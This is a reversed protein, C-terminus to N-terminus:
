SLGGKVSLVEYNYSFTFFPIKVKTELKGDEALNGSLEVTESHDGQLFDHFTVKLTICFADVKQKATVRLIYEDCNYNRTPVVDIEIHDKYNETTIERPRTIWGSLQLALLVVVIATFVVFLLYGARREAASYGDYGSQTVVVENEKDGVFATDRNENEDTGGDYGYADEAYGQHRGGDEFQQGCGGCLIDEVSVGLISALRLLHESDPLEGDEWREVTWESVNLMKALEGVSLGKEERRDYLFKGRDM